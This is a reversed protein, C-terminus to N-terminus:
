YMGKTGDAWDIIESLMSKAENGRPGRLTESLRESASDLIRVRSIIQELTDVVELQSAEYGDIANKIRRKVQEQPYGPTQIPTAQESEDEYEEEDLDSSLDPDSIGRAGSQEWEQEDQAVQIVLREYRDREELFMKRIVRIDGHPNGARVAAFMLQLMDTLDDPYDEEVWSMIKGIDRFREVQRLLKHYQGTADADALYADMYKIARLQITAYSQSGGAVEQLEGAVRVISEPDLWDISSDIAAQRLTLLLNMDTYRVKIDETLEERQEMEFVDHEDINDPRNPNLVVAEVWETGTIGDLRLRKLMALRRNGNRVTGDPRIWFPTAQKRRMWDSKLLEYDRSPVGKVLNGDVDCGADLLISIVSIEDDESNEPDLTHGLKSEMLTREAAFRRNDANLLLADVPVREVNFDRWQDKCWLRVTRDTPESRTEIIQQRQTANM